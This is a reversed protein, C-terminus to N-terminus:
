LCALLGCTVNLHIFAKKYFTFLSSIFDQSLQHSWALWMRWHHLCLQSLGHTHHCRKLHKNLAGWGKVEQNPSRETYTYHFSLQTWVASTHQYAEHLWQRGPSPGPELKSEADLLKQVQGSMTLHRNIEGTKNGPGSTNLWLDLPM